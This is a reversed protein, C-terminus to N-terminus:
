KWTSQLCQACPSCSFDDIISSWVFVKTLLFFLYNFSFILNALISTVLFLLMLGEGGKLYNLFAFWHLGAVEWGARRMRKSLSSFGQKSCLFIWSVCLRTAALCSQRVREALNISVFIGSHLCVRVISFGKGLCFAIHFSPGWSLSASDTTCTPLHKEGEEWDAWKLQPLPGSIVPPVRQSCPKCYKRKELQTM